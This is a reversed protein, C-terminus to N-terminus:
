AGHALVPMAVRQTVAERHHDVFPCVARCKNGRVHSVSKTKFILKVHAETRVKM